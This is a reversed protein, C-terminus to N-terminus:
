VPDLFSENSSGRDEARVVTSWEKMRFLGFVIFHHDCGKVLAGVMGLNGPKACGSNM